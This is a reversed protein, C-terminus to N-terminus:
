GDDEVEDSSDTAALEKKPHHYNLAAEIESFRILGMNADAQARIERLAAPLGEAIEVLAEWILNSELSLLGGVEAEYFLQSFLGDIARVASGSVANSVRQERRREQRSRLEAPEVSPRQRPEPSVVGGHLAGWPPITQVRPFDPIYLPHPVVGIGGGAACARLLPDDVILTSPRPPVTEIGSFVYFRRGQDDSPGTQQLRVQVRPRYPQNQFTFVISPIPHAPAPFIDVYELRVGIWDQVGDSPQFRFDQSAYFFRIETGDIHRACIRDGVQLAWYSQGLTSGDNNPFEALLCRNLSAFAESCESERISPHSSSIVGDFIWRVRAPSTHWRVVDFAGLINCSRQFFHETEWLCTEPNLRSVVLTFLAGQWSHRDHGEPIDCEFRDDGIEYTIRREHLDSPPWTM